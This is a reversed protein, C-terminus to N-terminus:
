AAIGKKRLNYRWRANRNKCDTSCYKSAERRPKPKGSDKDCGHWACPDKSTKVEREKKVTNTGEVIRIESPQESNCSSFWCNLVGRPIRNAPLHNPCIWVDQNRWYPKKRRGM